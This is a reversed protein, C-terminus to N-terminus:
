RIMSTVVCNNSTRSKAPHALKGLGVQIAEKMREGKKQKNGTTPGTTTQGQLARMM